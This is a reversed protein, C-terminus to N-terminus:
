LEGATLRYGDKGALFLCKTSDPKPKFRLSFFLSMTVQPHRLFALTARTVLQLMMAPTTTEVRHEAGAGKAGGPNWETIWIEKGPLRRAIDQVETDTGDDMRAALARLHRVALRPTLPEDAAGPGLVDNLRPYLHITVADFWPEPRGVSGGGNCGM